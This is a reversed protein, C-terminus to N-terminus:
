IEEGPKPEPVPIDTAPAEEAPAEEPAVADEAPAEPVAAVPAREATPTMWGNVTRSIAEGFRAPGGLNMVMDYGLLLFVLIALAAGATRLWQGTRSAPQKVRIDQSDDIFGALWGPTHRRRKNLVAGLVRGGAAAIRDCANEAVRAKTHDADLVLIVGDVNRSVLLSELSQTLPRSNVILLAVRSRERDIQMALRRTLVDSREVMPPRPRRRLVLSPEGDQDVIEEPDDYDVVLADDGSSQEEPPQEATLREGPFEREFENALATPPRMKGYRDVSIDDNKDFSILCVPGGLREDAFSAFHRTLSSTGEGGEPGLFQVSISQRDSREDSLVCLSQLLGLFQSEM